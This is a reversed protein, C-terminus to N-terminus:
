SIAVFVSKWHLVKCRRLRDFIDCKFARLAHSLEFAIDKIARPSAFHQMLPTNQQLCSFLQFHLATSCFVVPGTSLPTSVDPPWYSNNNHFPLFLFWCFSCDFELFPPTNTRTKRKGTPPAPSKWRWVGTFLVSTLRSGSAEEGPLLPM